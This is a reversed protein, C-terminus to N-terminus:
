QMQAKNTEKYTQTIFSLIIKIESGCFNQKQKKHKIQKTRLAQVKKYILHVFKRKISFLSLFSNGSKNM